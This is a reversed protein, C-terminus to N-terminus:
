VPYECNVNLTIHTNLTDGAPLARNTVECRLGSGDDAKTPVLELVSVTEAEKDTARTLNSSLVAGDGTRVTSHLAACYM